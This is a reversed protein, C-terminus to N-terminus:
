SHVCLSLDAEVNFSVKDSRLYEHDPDDHGLVELRFSYPGQVVVDDDVKIKVQYDEQQQPQYDCERPKDKDLQLWHAWRETGEPGSIPKLIVEARKRDGSNRVQFNVTAEGGPYLDGAPNIPFQQIDFDFNKTAM